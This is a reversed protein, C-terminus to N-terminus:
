SKFIDSRDIYTTHLLKHSQEGLPEGLFDNYIKQIYPNEHSKRIPLKKDEAYVGELRKEMKKWNKIPNGGGGICGGPCAMVEIFHYDAEGAKVANMLKRANGLGHAIAVKVEIGKLDVSAEKIGEFGRVANFDVDELEEGTVVEYVTRLAAEMVGGTAGFIEGAGTGLGFPSDFETEPLDAFNIGAACIMNALEQVTIVKDVDQYGSSNMEPRVCEFKKATCPMISVSYIDKPYVGSREPYWTKLLAGFMQQPSKCTSLHPLEEPFSTECFKIWAPCCSTVMPLTGGNQLRNLLEHGEEMITLDASFDTDFVKDFGVRKMATVLRGKNVTGPNEGLAEAITIRVAPAVQAIVHKGAEMAEYVHETDDHITLAGVPCAQICQGCNTCTSDALDKGYASSLKTSFGRGEKCLAGVSQIKDCVYSCRGCLICKNTDRVVSPSSEDKGHRTENTYRVERTFHMDQTVEQLECNGNRSCFLCEQAHHALILELVNSRVRQVKPTNTRVVMGEWVPFSCSPQLLKQGEIEVVCIRCNAKVAQDPHHCLTPIKVGVKKAAELITTGVEVETEQGDIVIQVM